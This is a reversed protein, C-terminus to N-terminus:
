RLYVALWNCIQGSCSEQLFPFSALRSHRLQVLMQRERKSNTDVQDIRFCNSTKVSIPKNLTPLVVKKEFGISQIKLLIVLYELFMMLVM